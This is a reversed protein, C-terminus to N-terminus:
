EGKTHRTYDTKDENNTGNQSEFSAKRSPPRLIGRQTGGQPVAGRQRTLGVGLAGHQEVNCGQSKEDRRVAHGHV